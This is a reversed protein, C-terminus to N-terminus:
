EVFREDPKQSEKALRVILALRQCGGSSRGPEAVVSIPPLPLCMGGRLYESYVQTLRRVPANALSSGRNRAKGAHIAHHINRARARPTIMLAAIIMHMCESSFCRPVSSPPLPAINTHLAQAVLPVRVRTAEEDNKRNNCLPIHVRNLSASRTEDKGADKLAHLRTAGEREIGGLGQVL